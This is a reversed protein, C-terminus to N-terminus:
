HNSKKIRRWLLKKRQTKWTRAHLTCLPLSCWHSDLCRSDKSRLDEMGRDFPASCGTWPWGHPSCWRGACSARSWASPTCGGWHHLHAEASRLSTGARWERKGPSQTWAQVRTSSCKYTMVWAYQTESLFESCLSLSSTTYIHTHPGTNTNLACEQETHMQLYHKFICKVCASLALKSVRGTISIASGCASM